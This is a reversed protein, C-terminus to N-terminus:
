GSCFDAASITQLRAYRMGFHQWHRESRFSLTGSSSLRTCNKPVAVAVPLKVNQGVVPRESQCDVMIRFARISRRFTVALIGPQLELRGQPM